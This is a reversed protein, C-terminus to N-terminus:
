RLLPELCTIKESHMRDDSDLFGIFETRVLAAGANRAAAANPYSGVVYSVADGFSRVVDETADTSDCDVVIVEAPSPDCKIASEIAERLVDARNLTPIVITVGGETSM